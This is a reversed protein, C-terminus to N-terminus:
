DRASQNCRDRACSPKIRVKALYDEYRVLAVFLAVRLGLIRLMSRAGAPPACVLTHLARTREPLTDHRPGRLGSVLATARMRVCWLTDTPRM